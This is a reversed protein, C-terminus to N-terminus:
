GGGDIMLCIRVQRMLYNRLRNSPGMYNNEVTSIKRLMRKNKSDESIFAYRSIQIENSKSIQTLRLEHYRPVKEICENLSGRSKSGALM